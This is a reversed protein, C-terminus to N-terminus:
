GCGVCRGCKRGREPLRLLLCVWAAPRGGHDGGEVEVV